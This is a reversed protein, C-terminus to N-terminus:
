ILNMMRFLVVIFFLSFVAFATSWLVLQSALEDDGDLGKTVAVSSVAIPSAFIAILAAWAHSFDIWHRVLFTMMFVFTPVAVLRGFVGTFLSGAYLKARQMQFQGGIAIMALPTATVAILDLTEHVVPVYDNVWFWAPQLIFAMFGLAIGIMLPNRMTTRMLQRFMTLSFGRNEKFVSFTIISLFNTIPILFANLIVIMSLAELGGLRIALPIGILTFNGRFFAQAIVPRHSNPMRLGYVVVYGIVTILLIMIAAFVVVGWEIERMDEIGAITVFILVPLAVYFIFRNLYHIFEDNIVKFRKLSYGVVALTLLPALANLAFLFSNM